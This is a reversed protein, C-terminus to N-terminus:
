PNCSSAFTADASPEPKISNAWTLYTDVGEKLKKM